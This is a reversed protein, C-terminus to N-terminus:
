LRATDSLRGCTPIRLIRTPRIAEGILIIETDELWWSHAFKKKPAAAKLQEESAQSQIYIEYPKKLRSNYKRLIGILIELPSEAIIITDIEHGAFTTGRVVFSPM